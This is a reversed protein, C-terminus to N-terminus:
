LMLELQRWRYEREEMAEIKKLFPTCDKGACRECVLADCQRCYGGLAQAGRGNCITIRQCHSCTFTDAEWVGTDPDTVCLWGHATRM